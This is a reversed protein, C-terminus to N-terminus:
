NRGLKRKATRLASATKKPVYVTHSDGGINLDLQGLHPLDSNASNLADSAASGGLVDGSLLGAMNTALNRSADAPLVQEGGRFRMLEPGNEGVWHLGPTASDTGSAYGPYTIQPQELGVATMEPTAVIPTITATITLTNGLRQALAQIDSELKAIEEPKLNITIKTDKVADLKRQFAELESTADAMGTKANKLDIAQAAEDIANLDNIFGEFGYTSEGAAKLEKLVALAQIVSERAADADGASVANRANVKLAEAEGYSAVGDESRNLDQRAERFRKESELQQSQVKELASKAKRQADVLRNLTGQSDKVVQDQVGKLEKAKIEALEVTAGMGTAVSDFSRRINESVEAAQQGAQEYEGNFVKGIRDVADSIGKSADASHQELIDFAGTLNGKGATVLAALLAGLYTGAADMVAGFIIGAAALGKLAGGFFTSSTTALNTNKSVDLMLGTIVNLSPLLDAAMKQGVGESVSGLVDLQDNFNGAAKYAEDSLVLGLDKAQNILEQIGSGGRNLLPLLKAGSKGFLEVALASKEAGDPLQAFKDALELLLVDASKIDGNAGRVSVGVKAFAAAQAKSGNAAKAANQNLKGLTAALAEGDMSAFKAAYQLGAFQSNLVGAREALEDTKDAADIASKIYVAFAGVSLAGALVAGAEKAGASLKNLQGDAEKFAKAANNKGEIVLQTTVKGGAM